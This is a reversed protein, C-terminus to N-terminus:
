PTLDVCVVFVSLGPSQNSLTFVRVQWKNSDLPRSEHVTVDHHTSFGGGIAMDGTFCSMQRTHEINSPVSQVQSQRTYFSPAAGNCVYRTQAANVEGAELTGNRNADLGTEVKSGGAAGCNAGAPEATLLILANLGDTGPAPQKARVAYPVSTIRQRPTLTTYATGPPDTSRKVAIELYRDGGDFANAATFNLEVTFIGNTVNAPVGTLTDILSGNSAADFLKFEFLYSGSSSGSADTLRGQYTFATTQAFVTTSFAILLIVYLSPLFLNTKM